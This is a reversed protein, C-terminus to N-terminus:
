KIMIYCKQEIALVTEYIKSAQYINEIIQNKNNKLVYPGLDGYATSSTMCIIKTFNPYSPDVFTGDKNYLRRDIRIM